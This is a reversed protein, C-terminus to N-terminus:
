IKKGDKEQSGGPNGGPIDFKMPKLRGGRYKQGFRSRRQLRSGHRGHKRGEETGKWIDHELACENVCEQQCEQEKEKGPKNKRLWKDGDLM